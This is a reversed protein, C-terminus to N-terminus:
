GGMVKVRKGELPLPPQVTTKDKDVVGNSTRTEIIKFKGIKRNVMGGAM